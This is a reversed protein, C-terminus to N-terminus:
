YKDGAPRKRRGLTLTRGQDQRDAWCLVPLFMLVGCVAMFLYTEAAAHFLSIGLTRAPNYSWIGLRVAFGETAAVSLV